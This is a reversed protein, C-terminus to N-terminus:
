FRIRVRSLSWCSLRLLISSFITPRSPCRSFGQVSTLHRAQCDLMGIQTRLGSRVTAARFCSDGREVRRNQQLCHSQACTPSGAYCIRRSIASWTRGGEHKDRKQAWDAANPPHPPIRVWPLTAAAGTKLVPAKFREAVWGHGSIGRRVAPAFRQVRRRRKRGRGASPRNVRDEDGRGVRDRSPWETRITSSSASRRVSSLRTNARAPKRTESAHSPASPKRSASASRGSRTTVSMAIGPCSPRPRSAPRRACHGAARTMAIDPPPAGRPQWRVAALASPAASTNRLGNVGPSIRIAALRRAAILIERRQVVGQRRGPLASDGSAPQQASWPRGRPRSFDM